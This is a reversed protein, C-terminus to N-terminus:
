VHHMQVDGSSLPATEGDHRSGASPREYEWASKIFKSSVNATTAIKEVAKEGVRSYWRWIWRLGHLVVPLFMFCDLVPTVDVASQFITYKIALFILWCLCIERSLLSEMANEYPDIYIRIFAVSSFLAIYALTRNNADDGFWTFMLLIAARELIFMPEAYFWKPKYPLYISQLLEERREGAAEYNLEGGCKRRAVFLEIVMWLPLLIILVVLVLIAFAAPGVHDPEFCTVTPVQFVVSRGLLSRCDLIALSSEM